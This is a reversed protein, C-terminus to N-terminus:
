PAPAKPEDAWAALWECDEAVSLMVRKAEPDTLRQALARAEIARARWDKADHIVSM